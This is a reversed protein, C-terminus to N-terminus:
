ELIEKKLIKAMSKQYFSAIVIIKHKEITSVGLNKMLIFISARCRIDVPKVPGCFNKYIHCSIPSYKNYEDLYIM